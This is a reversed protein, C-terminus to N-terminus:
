QQCSSSVATGCVPLAGGPQQPSEIPRYRPPLPPARMSDVGILKKNACARDHRVKLDLVWRPQPWRRADTAPSPAHLKSAARLLDLSLDLLQFQVASAFMRLLMQGLKLADQLRIGEGPKVLEM